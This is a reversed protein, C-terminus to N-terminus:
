LTPSVGRKKRRKRAPRRMATIVYAIRISIDALTLDRLESLGHECSVMDLMGELFPYGTKLVAFRSIELFEEVTLAAKVSDILAQFSELDDPSLWPAAAVLDWKGLSSNERLVVAFLEFPGRTRSLSLEAAALKKLFLPNM